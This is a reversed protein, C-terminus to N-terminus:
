LKAVQMDQINAVTEFEIRQTLLCGGETLWFFTKHLKQTMRYIPRFELDYESSCKAWECGTMEVCTHVVYQMNSNELLLQGV